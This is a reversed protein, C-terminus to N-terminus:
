ISFNMLERFLLFVHLCENIFYRSVVTLFHTMMIYVDLPIIPRVIKDPCSRNNIKDVKKCVYVIQLLIINISGKCSESSSEARSPISRTFILMVTTHGKTQCVVTHLTTTQYSCCSDGYSVGVYSFILYTHYVMAVAITHHLQTSVVTITKPKSISYPHFYNCSYCNVFYGRFQMKFICHMKFSLM